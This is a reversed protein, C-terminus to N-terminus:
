LDKDILRVPNVKRFKNRFKESVNLKYVLNIRYNGTNVAQEFPGGRVLELNKLIYNANVSFRRSNYGAFGRLFFTPIVGVKRFIRVDNEWEALGLSLNASAVGTLFFGKGFIWTGALGANPGAQLYRAKIFNFNSQAEFSPIVLSDGKMNGGYIEFGLFPSFASRKQIMSQNFSAQLSIKEGFFLYNFNVGYQRLKLDERLYDEDSNELQDSSLTYGEYFQGFLDIIMKKPYIHSQLDLYFPWDKQRSQNLFPVPFAVNLTFKQHTFGLGLNNGSNPRYVYKRDEKPVYVVLDTYKKSFYLRLGLVEPQEEVYASDFNSKQSWALDGWVLFLGLLFLFRLRVPM